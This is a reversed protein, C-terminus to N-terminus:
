MYQGNLRRLVEVFCSSNHGTSQELWRAPLPSKFTRQRWLGFEHERQKGAERSSLGTKIKETSYWSDSDRRCKMCKFTQRNTQGDM